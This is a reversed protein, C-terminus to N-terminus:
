KEQFCFVHWATIKEKQMFPGNTNTHFTFPLAKALAFRYTKTALKSGTKTLQITAFDFNKFDFNKCVQKVISFSGFLPWWKNLYLLFLHHTLRYNLLSQHSYLASVHVQNYYGIIQLCNQGCTLIDGFTLLMVGVWRQFTEGAWKIGVETRESNNSGKRSNISFKWARGGNFFSSDM